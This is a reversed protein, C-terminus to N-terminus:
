APKRCSRAGAFRPALADSSVEAPYQGEACLRRPRRGRGVKARALATGDRRRSAQSTPTAAGIQFRPTNADVAALRKGHWRDFRWRRWNDRGTSCAACESHCFRAARGVVISAIIEGRCNHWRREARRGQRGKSPAPRSGCGPRLPSRMSRLMAWHRRERRGGVEAIRSARAIDVAGGSSGRFQEGHAPGRGASSGSCVAFFRERCAGRRVRNFVFRSRDNSVVIDALDSQGRGGCRPPKRARRVLRGPARAPPAFWEVAKGIRGDDEGLMLAGKVM